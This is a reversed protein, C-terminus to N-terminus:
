GKIAGIMVGRVFHKQILPYLILVPVSAVIIVGYKVMEAIREQEAATELDEMMQSAVEAAILIDRLIIQLPFLDPERLFILADFFANWHMVGYFLVMVAIIAKSLPLVIQGFFRLNSCGDMQAAELMEDPITSQFFTRTVIFNWMVVANPLVM